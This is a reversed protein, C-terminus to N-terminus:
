PLLEAEASAVATSKKLSRIRDWVSMYKIGCVYGTM